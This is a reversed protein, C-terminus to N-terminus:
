VHIAGMTHDLTYGDSTFAQATNVLGELNLTMEGTRRHIQRM